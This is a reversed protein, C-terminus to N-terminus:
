ELFIRKVYGIQAVFVSVSDIIVDKFSFIRGPVFFQHIEDSFAYLIGCVVTIFIIKNRIGSSYFARYILLGLIFFECFHLILDSIMMPKLIFSLSSFYFILGAYVLVLSWNFYPNRIFILIREKFNM